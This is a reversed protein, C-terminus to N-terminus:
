LHLVGNCLPIFIYQSASFTKLYTLIISNIHMDPLVDHNRAVLTVSEEGYPARAALPL